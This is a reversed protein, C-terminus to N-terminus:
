FIKNPDQTLIADIQKEKEQNILKVAFNQAQKFTSKLYSYPYEYGCSAFSFEVFLKSQKDIKIGTIKIKQIRWEYENHWTGKHVFFMQQGIINKIKADM